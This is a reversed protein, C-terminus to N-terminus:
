VGGEKVIDIAKEIGAQYGINIVSTEFPEKEIEIKLCEKVKDVDYATPQQNIVEDIYIGTGNKGDELYPICGCRKVIDKLLKERSILDNSM